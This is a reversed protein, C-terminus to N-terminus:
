AAVQLWAQYESELREYSAAATQTKALDARSSVGCITRVKEAAWAATAISHDHGAHHEEFLFTRFRPEECRIGAQEALTLEHWSRKPKQKASEPMLRALAVPITIDPRPTGFASVIDNGKEIPVEIVVQCVKRSKIFRLDVYDGQIAAPATM